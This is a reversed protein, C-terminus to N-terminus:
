ARRRGTVGSGIGVGMGMGMGMGMGLWIAIGVGIDLVGARCSLARCLSHLVITKCHDGLEAEVSIIESLTELNM